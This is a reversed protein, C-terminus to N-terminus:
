KDLGTKRQLIRDIAENLPEHLDYINGELDLKEYLKEKGYVKVVNFFLEELFSPTISFIDNPIVFKVKECENDDHPLDLMYLFKCKGTSEVIDYVRRMSDCCNVLVLQEVKGELVAQIVSKGFGCLNEHAIQDSQEFNEPMEELASCEEGFGRFLEIPTYKCVYYIM